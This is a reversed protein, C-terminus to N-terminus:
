TEKKESGSFLSLLHNTLIVGKYLYWLFKKIKLALEIELYPYQLPIAQAILLARYM